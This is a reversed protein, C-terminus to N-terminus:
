RAARAAELSVARQRLRQLLTALLSVEDVDLPELLQAHIALVRPFIEQYLARGSATLAVTARRRDGAQVQRAVLGKAVLPMLAKSTRSRDMGSRLALESPAMGGFVALLGLYGWEHRTVGFERECLRTVGATSFSLILHMQYNLLDLISAPAALDPEGM